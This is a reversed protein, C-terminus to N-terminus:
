NRALDLFSAAQRPTRLEHWGLHGYQPSARLRAFKIRNKSYTTFSWLLISDRSLFTMRFSERNGAWLAQRTVIRGVTRRVVRSFVVPRSFNLWVIDTAAPWIVDRVASYNGDVVWREGSTAERAAREFVEPLRPTWDAGWHLQDLEVHPVHLKAALRAAFHTKGTGSTGVVVVRPGVTAQGALVAVIM